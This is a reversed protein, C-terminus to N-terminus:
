AGRYAPSGGAADGARCRRDATEVLAAEQPRLLAALHGRVDSGQTAAWHARQSGPHDRNLEDRAERKTPFKVVPFSTKPRKQQDGIWQVWRGKWVDGAKKLSGEGEGKKRSVRLGKVQPLDSSHIM